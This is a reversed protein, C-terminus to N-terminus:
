GEPEYAHEKQVTDDTRHIVLRSPARSTALERGAKVAKRKTDHSSSAQKGGEAEVVWQDDRPRVHYITPERGKMRAAAIGVATAAAAAGAAAGLVKKKRDDM